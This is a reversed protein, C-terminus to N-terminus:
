LTSRSSKENLGCASAYRQNALIALTRMVSRQSSTCPVGSLRGDGWTVSRDAPHRAANACTALARDAQGRRAFAVYSNAVVEAILDHRLEPPLKRFAIRASGRIAPLMALFEAHQAQANCKSTTRKVRAIM